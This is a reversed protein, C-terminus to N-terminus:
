SQRGRAADYRRDPRGTRGRGESAFLMRRCAPRRPSGACFNKRRGSRVARWRYHPPSIRVRAATSRGARRTRPPEPAPQVSPEPTAPASDAGWPNEAGKGALRRPAAYAHSAAATAAGPARHRDPMGTSVTRRCHPRNPRPGTPPPALRLCTAAHLCTARLGPRPTVPRSARHPRNRRFPRCRSRRPSAAAPRLAYSPAPAPPPTNFPQARRGGLRPFGSQGSGSKAPASAAGPRDPAARRGRQGLNRRIPRPGHPSRGGLLVAGRGEGDVAAAIIYHGITFRDGTRLRHPAQMRHDGGNFFTGNTSVDHLWYGGDTIGSRPLAQQFHLPDSRAADLRSAFRPRHRHQAQRHRHHEDARRGALQTENEIKLTLGHEGGEGARPPRARTRGLRNGTRSMM